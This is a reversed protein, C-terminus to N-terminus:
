HNDNMRILMTRLLGCLSGELVDAVSDTRNYLVNVTLMGIASGNHESYCVIGFRRSVSLVASM